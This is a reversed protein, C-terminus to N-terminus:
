GKYAGACVIVDGVKEVYSTKQEVKKTAPNVFKYDQWGSGKSKAIEVREKVFLKGDPDKADLYDKGVRSPDAGHAVCKGNMDYVMIYLDKYIFPGSKSQYSAYAKEAGHKKLYSIATKVLDEADQPAAREEALASGSLLLLALLAALKKM